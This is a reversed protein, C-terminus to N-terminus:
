YILGSHILVVFLFVTISFGWGFGISLSFMDLTNTKGQENLELRDLLQRLDQSLEALQRDVNFATRSMSSGKIESGEMRVRPREQIVLSASARSTIKM